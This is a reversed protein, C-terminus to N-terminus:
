LPIGTIKSLSSMLNRSASMLSQGLPDSASGKLDAASSHTRKHGADVRTLQAPLPSSPRASMSSAVAHHPSPGAGKAALRAAHKRAEASAPRPLPVSAAAVMPRETQQLKAIDRMMQQQASDLQTFSLSIQRQNSALQDINQRLAALEPQDPSLVVAFAAPVIENATMAGVPASVGVPLSSVATPQKAAKGYSQWTLTAIVGICMALLFRMTSRMEPMARKGPGPDNKVDRPPPIIAEVSTEASLWVVSYESRELDLMTSM